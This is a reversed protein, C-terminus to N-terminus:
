RSSLLPLEDEKHKKFPQLLLTKSLSFSWVELLFLYVFFFGIPKVTINLARQHTMWVVLLLPSSFHCCLFSGLFHSSFFCILFWLLDFSHLLILLIVNFHQLLSTSLAFTLLIDRFIAIWAYSWKPVQKLRLNSLGGGQSELEKPKHRWPIHM